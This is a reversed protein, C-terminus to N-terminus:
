APDPDVFDVKGDVLIPQDLAKLCWGLYERIGDISEGSVDAPEETYANISGDDNYFVERVSYFLDGNTLTEQVVRHNWHGM